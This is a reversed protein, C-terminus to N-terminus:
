RWYGEVWVWGKSTQRWRGPAWRYGAHPPAAYTGAVWVYSGSRWRFYGGRWVWTPHEAPTPAIVEAPPVPPATKPYSAPEARAALILCLVCLAVSLRRTM